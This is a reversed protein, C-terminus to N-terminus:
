ARNTILHKLFATPDDARVVSEGILFNFVGAQKLTEIDERTKIGSEAVLVIDSPFLSALKRTNEINTSFSKLNRNNIGILRASTQLAKDVESESHIELLVDLNAKGALELLEELLSQSLIRAILLVADAGMAKSEYIQYESLIFDKRLVPLSVNEIVTKLDEPSGHFFDLDTLVSIARAGGAEYKKAYTGPDLDDRIVGKSPSARKIEAIVNIGAPGATELQRFFSRSTVMSDTIEMLLEKPRRKRALEVEEKKREVIRTLIDM